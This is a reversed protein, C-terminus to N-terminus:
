NNELTQIRTELEEIKTIAEQLSKTLIPILKSADVAQPYIEEKGDVIRMQDKVGDVAIPVVDQLEHAIFGDMSVDPKKIFNFNRPKLLKLKDIANEIDKINEKLRYDSTTAYQINSASNVNIRGIDGGSDFFNVFHGGTADNDGSFQIRVVEDGSTVSDHTNQFLAVANTTGSFEGVVQLKHTIGSSIGIGVKESSDITIATADANDDIGTSKFGTITTASDQAITTANTGGLTLTTSGSVTDITNTELKSM